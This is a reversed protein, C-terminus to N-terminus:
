VVLGCWVIINACVHSKAIFVPQSLEHLHREVFLHQLRLSVSRTHADTFTHIHIHAYIQTYTHTDILICSLTFTHTRKYTRSRRLSFSCVRVVCVCLPVKARPTTTEWKLLSNFARAPRTITSIQSIEMPRLSRHICGGVCVKANACVSKKCVCVCVFASVCVCM